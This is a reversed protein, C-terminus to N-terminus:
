FVFPIVRKTKGAYNQYDPYSTQLLTEEATIRILIVATVLVGIAVHLPSVHGLISAWILLLAAAYMPHRIFRYPGASIVGGGAPAAHISFQTAGFSRRAWIALLVALVQGAIVLPSRSFLSATLLLFFIAVVLVLLATQSILKM